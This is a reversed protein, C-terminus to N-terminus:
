DGANLDAILAEVSKFRKGKGTELEAMAKQTTANPRDAKALRSVERRLAAVEKLLRENQKALFSLTITESDMGEFYFLTNCKAIRLKRCIRVEGPKGM